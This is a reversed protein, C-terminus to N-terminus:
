VKTNKWIRYSQNRQSNWLSFFSGGSSCLNTTRQKEWAKGSFMGWILAWYSAPSLPNELAGCPGCWQETGSEVSFNHRLHAQTRGSVAQRSEPFHSLQNGTSNEPPGFSTEQLQPSDLLTPTSSIQPFYKINKGDEPFLSIFELAWYGSSSWVHAHPPPKTLLDHCVWKSGISQLLGPEEAWPTRWALISSRTARDKALPDKGGLSRVQTEQMTPPRKVSQAVLSLSTPM